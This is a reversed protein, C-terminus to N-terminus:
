KWLDDDNNFRPSTNQPERRAAGIMDSFKDSEVSAEEKAIDEKPKAEDEAEAAEQAAVRRGVWWRWIRLGGVVVLFSGLATFPWSSGIGIFLLTGSLGCGLCVAGLLINASAGM